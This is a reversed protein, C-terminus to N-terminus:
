SFSIVVTVEIVQGAQVNITQALIARTFAAGSSQQNGNFYMITNGSTSVGTEVETISNTTAATASGTLVLKGANAGTKPVSLSLTAFVTGSVSNYSAPNEGTEVITCQSQNGAYVACPGGIYPNQANPGPGGLVVKWKGVGISRALVQTLFEPGGGAPIISNEFEHTSTVLGDPNRVVITWHGHVQIGERPGSPAEVRAPTSGVGAAEESSVAKSQATAQAILLLSLLPLETWLTPSKM